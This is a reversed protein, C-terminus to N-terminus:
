SCSSAKKWFQFYEESDRVGVGGGAADIIGIEVAAEMSLTKRWWQTERKIFAWWEEVEGEGKRTWEREAREGAGDKNKGAKPGGMIPNFSWSPLLLHPAWSVAAGVVGAILSSAPPWWVLLSTLHLSVAKPAMVRLRWGPRPIPGKVMPIAGRQM